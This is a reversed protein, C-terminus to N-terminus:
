ASLWSPGWSLKSGSGIESSVLVNPMWRSGPHLLWLWIIWKWVALSIDLFVRYNKEIKLQFRIVQGPLMLNGTTHGCWKFPLPTMPHLEWNIAELNIEGSCNRRKRHRHVMIRQLSSLQKSLCTCWVSGTCSIWSASIYYSSFSLVSMYVPQLPDAWQHILMKLKQILLLHILMKVILKIISYLSGENAQEMFITFMNVKQGWVMYCSTQKSVQFKIHKSCM